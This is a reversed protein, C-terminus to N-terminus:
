YLLQFVTYINQKEFWLLQIKVKKKKLLYTVEIIDAVPKKTVQAIPNPYFFIYM